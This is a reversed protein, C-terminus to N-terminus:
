QNPRGSIVKWGLPLLLAASILKLLDGPIFPYLGVALVKKFGVFKALWLLGPVYLLINGILMSIMATKVQRDFGRECLWGVLYAALIFGIIYGFTPSLLYSLGGGRAFWPLGALGMLLYTIQSLAGRKSGLLAGSLLVALTQMTIPVAGIEIKLKACVGTVIAFSLVLAIDKLLTLTKNEIRPIIIDILTLNKIEAM